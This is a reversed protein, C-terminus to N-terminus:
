QHNTPLSPVTNCVVEPSSHLLMTMRFSEKPWEQKGPLRAPGGEKTSAKEMKSPRRGAGEEGKGWGM